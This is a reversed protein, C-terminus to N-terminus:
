NMCLPEKLIKVHVPDTYYFIVTIGKITPTSIYFSPDKDWRVVDKEKGRRNV